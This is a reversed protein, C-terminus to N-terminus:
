KINNRYVKNNQQDKKISNGKYHLLKIVKDRRTTKSSKTNSHKHRTKILNNMDKGFGLFM